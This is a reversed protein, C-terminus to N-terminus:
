DFRDVLVHLPNGPIYIASATFVPSDVLPGRIADQDIEFQHRNSHDEIHRLAVDAVALTRLVFQEFSRVRARNESRVNEEILRQEQGLNHASMSIVAIISLIAVLVVILRTQRFSLEKDSKLPRVM